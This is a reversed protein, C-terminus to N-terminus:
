NPAHEAFPRVAFLPADEINISGFEILHLFPEIRSWKLIINHKINVTAGRKGDDSSIRARLQMIWYSLQYIHCAMRPWAPLSGMLVKLVNRQWCKRDVTTSRCIVVAFSGSPLRTEQVNWHFLLGNAWALREAKASVLFAFRHRLVISDHGFIAYWIGRSVNPVSDPAAVSCRLLLSPVSFCVM